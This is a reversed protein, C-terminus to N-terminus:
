IGEPNAPFEERFRAQGALTPEYRRLVDDIRKLVRAKAIKKDRIDYHNRLWLLAATLIEVDAAIILANRMKQNREMDGM